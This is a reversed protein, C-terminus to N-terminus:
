RWSCCAITPPLGPRSHQPQFIAIGRAGGVLGWNIVVTECIVAIAVTAISFFIGRLRLTLAGVLFGMAGTVAAAAVVQM